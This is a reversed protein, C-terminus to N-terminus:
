AIANCTREAREAPAASLRNMNRDISFFSASDAKELKNKLTEGWRWLDFAHDRRNNTADDM